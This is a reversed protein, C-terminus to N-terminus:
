FLLTAVVVANYTGPTVFKGAPIRGFVTVPVPAGTPSTTAVATAGAWVTSRTTDTYLEFPLTDGSVGDTMVRAGAAGALTVTGSTGKTCTVTLNGQADNATGSVPNYVGFNVTADTMTCSANVQATVNVNAQTTAARAPAAAVVLAALAATTALLTLIRNM